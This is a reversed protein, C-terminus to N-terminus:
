NRWFMIIGRGLRLHGPRLWVLGEHPRQPSSIGRRPSPGLTGAGLALDLILDLKVHETESEADEFVLGLVTYDQRHELRVIRGSFEVGKQLIVQGKEKIDNVLAAKVQDGVAGKDTDIESVLQLTIESNKPLKLEKKVAPTSTGAAVDDDDGFKLTSEGAFEHCASFRVVNRSADGHLDVMVAESVLPLLFDRSGIRTRKYEMTDSVQRLELKLPLDDAEVELRLADFTGAEAYFSGHFGVTVTLEPVRIRMGAAKPVSFDFRTTFRDGLKTEGKFEFETSRGGFVTNAYLGFDGNGFMGTPVFARLDTDEFQKSGPWAFMEKGNVLAVELRVTDQLRFEKEKGTRNSREVTELCTYNPQRALTDLMHARVRALLAAAGDKVFVGDQSHAGDQAGQGALQLAAGCLALWARAMNSMIPVSRMFIRGPAHRTLISRFKNNANLSLHWCFYGDVGVAGDADFAVVDDGIDVTIGESEAAAGGDAQATAAVGFVFRKAVPRM